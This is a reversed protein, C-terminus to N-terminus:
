DEAVAKLPRSAKRTTVITACAPCCTPKPEKTRILSYRSGGPLVGIRAEGIAARFLNGYKLAKAEAEKVAAKAARLEGDWVLSDSPLAVEFGSDSPYQRKLAEYTSESGDAEPPDRNEVRKWFDSLRPAAFPLFDPDRDIERMALRFSFGGLLGWIVGWEWGLVAMSVQVQVQARLPAGIEDEESQKWDDGHSFEGTTKGEGIGPGRPDAVSLQLEIGGTQGCGPCVYFGMPNAALKVVDERGGKWGSCGSGQRTCAWVKRGEARIERDLSCGIPVGPVVDRTWFITSRGHDILTRGLRRGAEKAVEDELLSGWRVAENTDGLDPEAAIEELTLPTTKDVYVSYASKHKDWGLIAAVDTSTLLKKRAALWHVRASFEPSGDPKFTDRFTTRAVQHGRPSTLAQESAQSM